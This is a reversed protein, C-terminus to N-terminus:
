IHPQVNAGNRVADFHSRFRRGHLEGAGIDARDDIGRGHALQWEIAAAPGVQRRQLRSNGSDFRLRSKRSSRVPAVPAEPLLQGDGARARLLVVVAEVTDAEVVVGVACGAAHQTPIKADISDLFKRHQGAVVGGFVALGRSSNDVGDGAGASVIKVAAHVFKEAVARQISFVIEFRCASWFRGELAILEPTRDAPADYRVARKEKHVVFADPM